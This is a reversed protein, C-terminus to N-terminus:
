SSSATPTTSSITWAMPATVSGTAGTNSGAGGTKMGTGGATMLLIWWFKVSLVGILIEVFGTLGGSNSGLFNFTWVPGSTFVGTIECILGMLLGTTMLGGTTFFVSLGCFFPMSIGGLLFPGPGPGLDPGTVVGVM